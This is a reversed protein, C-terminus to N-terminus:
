RGLDFNVTPHNQYESFRPISHAIEESNMDFIKSIVKVQYCSIPLEIYDIDHIQGQFDKETFNLRFNRLYKKAQTKSTFERGFDAFEFSEKDTGDTQHKVITRLFIKENTQPNIFGVCYAPETSFTYPM